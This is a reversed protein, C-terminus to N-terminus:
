NCPLAVDLHVGYFNSRPILPTTYTSSGPDVRYKYAFSGPSPTKTPASSYGQIKLNNDYLPDNLDYYFIAGDILTIEITIKGNGDPASFTATGIHVYNTFDAIIRVSKAVGEYKVYMAWNGKKVYRDGEAWASEEEYCADTENFCFTVHSIDKGEPAVLGADSTADEYSYILAGTSAKVIVKCVTYGASISWDFTKGNSNSITITAGVHTYTGDMGKDEDWEDVKYAFAGCPGAQGCEFAADGSQWNEILVPEVAAMVEFDSQLELADENCSNFAALILL